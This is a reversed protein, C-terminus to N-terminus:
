QQKKIRKQKELILENMKNRSFKRGKQYKCNISDEEYYDIFYDLEKDSFHSPNIFRRDTDIEKEEENKINEIEHIRFIPTEENVICLEYKNENLEKINIIMLYDNLIRKEVFIKGNGCSHRDTMDKKVGSIWYEDGTEIDYYNGKSGSKQFAKGNFYITKGSKSYSVLGIWAPGDDSFGTKLEIYKIESKM